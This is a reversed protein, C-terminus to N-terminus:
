KTSDSSPSGFKTVDFTFATQDATLIFLRKGDASFQALSIPKTLSLRERETGTLLEYVTMQGPVNEVAILGSAPAIAAKNGFFRHLLKAQSISYILIRNEDDAVLLYDGAAMVNEVDFSGEGTELLFQGKITGTNPEIIQFLYDGEKEQMSSLKASLAANAKVINKAAKSSLRWALTMTNQVPSIFYRPTEDDFQRTWLAAGTQADRVEMLTDKSAVRKEREEEVFPRKEEKEKEEEKKEKDSKEKISKMVVVFQGHQRLNKESIPNGPKITVTKVNMEAITRETEGQKPFDAYITGDPAFYSGRFARVHLIREGTQLNWVAGRSKDSVTLWDSDPSLAATRLNSFHSPPLNLTAFPETKGFPYIAIEGNKREAVFYNDYVDLASKKNAFLYKKVKLDYVAVAAGSVPRVAVYDGREAKTFNFGSLEFQELREGSPFAFIGSKETDKGYQGIVKDPAIFALSTFLLKKINEGISFIKRTQIDVALSEQRNPIIVSTYKRGALFYRGDPSFKMNIVPIENTDLVDLVFKWYYYEGYTPLYFQKEKFIQENTAVNYLTLDGNFEYCALMSGDPSIQSQWYGRPIAVEYTSILNKGAINWKQVRLNKNYVVVTKSDSTFAAPSAEEAEIRFLVAFPERQLVSVSSADQALIYEGNPSFRLHEIDSRLPVLSRRRMLGNLSEKSGLGSYNIVFARWEDFNEKSAVARKDLCQAPISKMAEIMERLRKDVPKTTGFLDSFFNSKKADTFRSWFATYINPDYGASILAYIGVRDAELQQNDEHNGGFRIQKTNWKEIFQNYKEFVGRRDGVQTVGLIQKFYKSLDITHHRVVAHGLEHAIVGALEDESRVFSILKRTVFIRGGAMAFANTAPLDAVVFRFKINTGPLHKSIRDGISQLRANVREDDIVRYDKQLREVMADGLDMEQQENFINDANKNYVIQPPQCEAQALINQVFLSLFVFLSFGLYKLKM